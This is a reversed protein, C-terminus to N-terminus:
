LCSVFTYEKFLTKSIYCSEVQLMPLKYLNFWKGSDVAAVCEPPYFLYPKLSLNPMYNNGECHTKTMVNTSSKPSDIMLMYKSGSLNFYKLILFFDKHSFQNWVPGMILLDFHPSAKSRMVEYLRSYIGNTTKNYCVQTYIFKSLSKLRVITVNKSKLTQTMRIKKQCTLLFINVEPRKLNKGIINVVHYVLLDLTLESKESLSTTETGVCRSSTFLSKMNILGNEVNDLHRIALHKTVIFPRTINRVIEGTICDRVTFNQVVHTDGNTDIYHMPRLLSLFMLMHVSVIIVLPSRM